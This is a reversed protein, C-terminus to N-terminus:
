KKVHRYTIGFFLVILLMLEILMPGHVSFSLAVDSSVDNTKYIFFLALILGGTTVWGEWSIPFWLTPSVKRFWHKKDKKM